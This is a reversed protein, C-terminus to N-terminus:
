KVMGLEWKVLLDKAEKLLLSKKEFESENNGSRIFELREENLKKEFLVYYKGVFFDGKLNSKEPSDNKDFKIWSLMSKCIHIGRDNVIQVKHVDYGDEILINAM